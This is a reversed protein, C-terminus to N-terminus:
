RSQATSATPAAVACRRVPHCSSRLSRTTWRLLSTLPLLNFPSFSECAICRYELDRVWLVTASTGDAAVCVASVPTAAAAAADAVRPLALPLIARAAVGPESASYARMGPAGADDSAAGSAAGGRASQAGAPPSRPASHDSAANCCLQGRLRHPFILTRTPLLTDITFLSVRGDARGVAIAAASYGLATPMSGCEGEGAGAGGETPAVCLARMAGRGAADDYVAVRALRGGWAGRVKGRASRAFAVLVCIESAFTSTAVGAIREVRGGGAAGAAPSGTAVSMDLTDAGGSSLAAGDLCWLALHAHARAAEDATPPPAVAAAFYSRSNAFWAHHPAAEHGSALVPAHQITQGCLYEIRGSECRWRWACLRLRPPARRPPAGLAAHAVGDACLALGVLRDGAPSLALRLQRLPGSGIGACAARTCRCVEEGRLCASAAPSKATEDVNWAVVVADAGYGAVAGSSGSCTTFVHRGDRAVALGSLPAAHGGDLVIPAADADSPVVIGYRGSTYAARVNTGQGLGGSHSVGVVSRLRPAGAQRERESVWIEDAM